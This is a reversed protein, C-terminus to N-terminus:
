LTKLNSGQDGALGDGGRPWAAASGTCSMLFTGGPWPPVRAQGRRPLVKALIKSIKKKTLGTSFNVHVVLIVHFCRSLTHISTEVHKWVQIYLKCSLMVQIEWNSQSGGLDRWPLAWTPGFVPLTLLWPFQLFGHHKNPSLWARAQGPGPQPGERAQSNIM